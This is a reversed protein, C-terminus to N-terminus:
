LSGISAKTRGLSSFIAPVTRWTSPSAGTAAYRSPATSLSTATASSRVIHRMREKSSRTACSLRL